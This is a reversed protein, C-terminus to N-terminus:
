KENEAVARSCVVVIGFEYLWPLAIPNASQNPEGLLSHSREYERKWLKGYKRSDRM